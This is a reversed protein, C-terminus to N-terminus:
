NKQLHFAFFSYHNRQIDKEHPPLKKIFTFLM